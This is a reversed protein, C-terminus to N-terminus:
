EETNTDCNEICAKSKDICAAAKEKKVYLSKILFATNKTFDDCWEMYEDFAKAEAEGAKLVKAKLAELLEITKSLPNTVAGADAAPVCPLASSLLLVFAVAKM